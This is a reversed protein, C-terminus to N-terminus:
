TNENVLREIGRLEATVPREPGDTGVASQVKCWVADVGCAFYTGIPALSRLTAPALKTGLASIIAIPM